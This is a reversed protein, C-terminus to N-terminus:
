GREALYFFRSVRHEGALTHVCDLFQQLRQFNSEGELKQLPSHHRSRADRWRASITATSATLDEGQLLHLGATAILRENEGPPVWVYYGVSSRTAVEENSVTGTIVLADTFLVRGGPKLVRHWEKLVNARGKLHCIVDNSFVADFSQDPFPLARSADVEQLTLNLKATKALACANIIASSNADIGTVTCNFKRALYVACGGAGCGVELLSKNEIQLLGAFRDLEDATMWGTQGLDLGYTEARVQQYVDVAYQSYSNDYLNTTPM